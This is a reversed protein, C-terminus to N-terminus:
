EVVPGDAAEHGRGRLLAGVAGGAGGFVTPFVVGALVLAPVLAPAGSAGGVTVEFLFVCALSALGYGPLTLAGAFAGDAVSEARTYGLVAGAVLLLGVPVLHLLATFGADGGVYNVTRNGVLPVNRFTTDVFHANFFVWGAMEVTAPDGGFADVLRNLPSSRLEPGVVLYTALYGVLWAAVGAATGEVISRTEFRQRSTM